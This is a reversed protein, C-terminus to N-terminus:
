LPPDVDKSPRPSTGNIFRAIAKGESDSVPADAPIGQQLREERLRAIFLRERMRAILGGTVLGGLVGWYWAIRWCLIVVALWIALNVLRLFPSFVRGDFPRTMGYRTGCSTAM